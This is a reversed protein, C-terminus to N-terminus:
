EYLGAHADGQGGERHVVWLFAEFDAMEAFQHTIPWGLVRFLLAFASSFFFCLFRPFTRAALYGM